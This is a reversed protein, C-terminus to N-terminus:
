GNDLFCGRFYNQRLSVPEGLKAWGTFELESAGIGAIASLPLALGLLVFARSRRELMPAIWDLRRLWFFALGWVALLALAAALAVLWPPIQLAALLDPAQVVYTAMLEVSVVRGWSALGVIVLGYYASAAILLLAVAFAALADRATRGLPLACLTARLAFLLLWVIGVVVAHPLLASRPAGFREVYVAFFAAPLLAFALSSAALAGWRVRTAREAQSRARVLESAM